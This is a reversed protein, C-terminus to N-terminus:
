VCVNLFVYACVYMYVSLKGFVQVSVCMHMCMYEFGVTCVQVCVLVYVCVYKWTFVCEFGVCVHKCVVCLCVQMCICMYMHVCVRPPPLFGLTYSDSPAM